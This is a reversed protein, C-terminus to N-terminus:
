KCSDRLSNTVDNSIPVQGSRSLLYDKGEQFKVFNPNIYGFKDYLIKSIEIFTNVGYTKLQETNGEEVLAKFGPKLTPMDEGLGMLDPINQSDRPYARVLEQAIGTKPLVVSYGEKNMKDLVADTIKDVEDILTQNAVLSGTGPFEQMGTSLNINRLLIEKTEMNVFNYLQTEKDLVFKTNHNLKGYRGSGKVDNKIFARTNIFFETDKKLATSKKFEQVAEDTLIKKAPKDAKFVLCELVAATLSVM